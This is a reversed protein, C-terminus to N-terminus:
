GDEALQSMTRVDESTAAAENLGRSNLAVEVFERSTIAAEVCGGSVTQVRKQLGRAVIAVEKRYM